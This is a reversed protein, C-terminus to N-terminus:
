TVQRLKDLNGSKDGEGSRAWGAGGLPPSSRLRGAALVVTSSASSDLTVLPTQYDSSLLLLARM